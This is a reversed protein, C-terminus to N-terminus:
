KGTTVYVDDYGYQTRSQQFSKDTSHSEKTTSITQIQKQVSKRFIFLCICSDISCLARILVFWLIKCVAGYNYKSVPIRGRNWKSLPDFVIKM